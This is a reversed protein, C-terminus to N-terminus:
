VVLDADKLCRRSVKADADEEIAESGVSASRYMDLSSQLVGAVPLDGDESAFFPCACFRLTDVVAAGLFVASSTEATLKVRSHVVHYGLLLRWRGPGRM